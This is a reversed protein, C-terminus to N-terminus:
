KKADEKVIQELEEFYKVYKEAIQELDLGLKKTRMTGLPLNIHMCYDEPIKGKNHYVPLLLPDDKMESVLAWLLDRLKPKDQLGKERLGCTGWKPVWVIERCNPHEVAKVYEKGTEQYGMKKIKEIIKNKLIDEAKNWASAVANAADIKVPDKLIENIIQEDTEKLMINIGKEQVLDKYHRIFVEVDPEPLTQAEECCKELVTTLSAREGKPEIVNLIQTLPRLKNEQVSRLYTADKECKRCQECYGKADAYGTPAAPQKNHELPLYIIKLVDLKLEDKVYHYYRCLQNPQDGAGNIKNEIIIGQTDNRLLLDIREKERFVKVASTDFGSVNLADLFYRLYAPNGIESEPDFILRLTDSHLNEKHFQDSIAKFVNFKPSNAGLNGLKETREKVLRSLADFLRNINNENDM